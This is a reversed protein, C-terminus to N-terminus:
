APQSKEGEAERLSLRVCDLLVGITLIGQIDRLTPDAKIKSIDLSPFRQKIDQASEPTLQGAADTKIQITELMKEFQVSCGFKKESRFSADLLDISEGGLDNFFNGQPTVEEKEVMLVQSIVEQFDSLLQAEDIM